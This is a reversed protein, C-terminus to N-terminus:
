NGPGDNGVKNFFLKIILNILYIILYLNFFLM